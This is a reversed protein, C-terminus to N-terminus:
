TSDKQDGVGADESGVERIGETGSGIDVHEKEWLEIKEVAKELAARFEEPWTAGYGGNLEKMFQEHCEPHRVPLHAKVQLLRTPGGCIVCNAYEEDVVM